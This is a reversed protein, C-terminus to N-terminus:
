KSNTKKWTLFGISKFVDFSTGLHEKAIVYALKSKDDFNKMYEILIAQNENSHFSINEPVPLGLEKISNITVETNSM